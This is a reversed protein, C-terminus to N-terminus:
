HPNRRLNHGRAQLEKRREESIPKKAPHKDLWVKEAAKRETDTLNPDLGIPNTGIVCDQQLMSLTFCGATEDAGRKAIKKQQKVWKPVDQLHCIEENPFWAATKVTDSKPCLPASCSDFYRCDM